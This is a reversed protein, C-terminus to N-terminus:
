RELSEIVSSTQQSLMTYGQNWNYQNGNVTINSIFSYTVQQDNVNCLIGAYGRGSSIDYIVGSELYIEQYSKGQAVNDIMSGCIDATSPPDSCGFLAVASLIVIKKM